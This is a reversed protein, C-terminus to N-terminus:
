MANRSLAFPPSPNTPCRYSQSINELLQTNGKRSRRNKDRFVKAAEFSGVTTDKRLPSM